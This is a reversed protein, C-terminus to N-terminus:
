LDIKKNSIQKYYYEEMALRINKFKQEREGIYCTKNNECTKLRICNPLLPCAHCCADDIQERQNRISEEDRESTDIHGIYHSDTFHECLGIHGDPLIVECNCRM